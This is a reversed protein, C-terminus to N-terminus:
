NKPKNERQTSLRKFVRRMINIKGIINIKGKIKSCSMNKM